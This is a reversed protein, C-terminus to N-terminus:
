DSVDSFVSSILYLKSKIWKMFRWGWVLKRYHNTILSLFQPNEPTYTTYSPFAYYDFIFRLADYASIFAVSGHTEHEYYAYKFRLSTQPHRKIFHILDLNYRILETNESTDSQVATTDIGNAMRNAITLFLAKHQYNNKDLAVKSETLIKHTDWWIAADISIYANFLDKHHVLAQIVMLGGLSHGMLLKYPATPYSADIYPILENEIFSLFKEGGGAGQIGDNNGVAASPTLDRGRNTNLIGVVIMPPCVGTSVLREVIAAVSRFNTEGDLVYLVPYAEQLNPNSKKSSFPTYVFLQRQENLITSKLSDAFGLTFEIQSQAVAGGAFSIFFCTLFILSKM